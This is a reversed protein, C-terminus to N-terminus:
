TACACLRQEERTSFRAVIRKHVQSYCQCLKPHMQKLDRKEDTERAGGDHDDDAENFVSFLEETFVFLSKGVAQQRGEAIQALKSQCGILECKFEGCPLRHNAKELKSRRQFKRPVRAFPM